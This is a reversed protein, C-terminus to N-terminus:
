SMILLRFGIVSKSVNFIKALEVVSYDNEYEKLLGTPVLLNAAFTNAEKEIPDDNLIGNRYLVPIEDRNIKDKHLFWHGLEHAITFTQRNIPDSKSIYIAMEDFNIYGSINEEQFEVEIVKIGENNAILVPNVPPETIFNDELVVKSYAKAKLYDPKTIMLM